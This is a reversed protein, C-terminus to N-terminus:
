FRRLEYVIDGAQLKGFGVQSNKKLASFSPRGSQIERREGEATM